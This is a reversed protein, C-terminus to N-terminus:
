GISFFVNTVVVAGGVVVPVVVAVGVAGVVIGHNQFSANQGDPQDQLSGPEHEPCEHHPPQCQKSM